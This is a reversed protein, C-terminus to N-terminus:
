VPVGTKRKKELHEADIIDMIIQQEIENTSGAAYKIRLGFPGFESGELIGKPIEFCFNGVLGGRPLLPAPTQIINQIKFPASSDPNRTLRFVAVRELGDRVFPIRLEADVVSNQLTSKSEISVCFVYLTANSDRYRYRFADVLYTSADANALKSANTSLSLARRAISSNRFAFAASAVAAFAAVLAILTSANSTLFDPALM